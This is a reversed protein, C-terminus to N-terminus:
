ATSAPSATKEPTAAEHALADSVESSPATIAVATESSSAGGEQPNAATDSSVSTVETAAEKLASEAGSVGQHITNELDRAQEELQAQFKKLDEMEMERRVESKVDNVYRQARGLLAGATRAVRPLREPGIVVLAVLGIVILESFGIDFM